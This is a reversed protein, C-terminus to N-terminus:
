VEKFSSIHALPMYVRKDNNDIILLGNSVEWSTFPMDSYCVSEDTERFSHTFIRLTLM